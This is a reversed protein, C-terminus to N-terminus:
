KQIRESNVWAEIQERHRHFIRRPETLSLLIADRVTHSLNSLISTPSLLSQAILNTAYLLVYIQKAIVKCIGPWPFKNHSVLGRRIFTSKSDSMWCILQPDSCENAPVTSRKTISILRCTNNKVSQITVSLPSRQVHPHPSCPFRPSFIENRVQM